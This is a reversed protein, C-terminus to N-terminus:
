VGGLSVGGAKIKRGKRGKSMAKSRKIKSPTTVKIAAM